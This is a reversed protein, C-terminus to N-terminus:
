HSQPKQALYDPKSSISMQQCKLIMQNGTKRNQLAMKELANNAQLQNQLLLDFVKQQKKGSNKKNL